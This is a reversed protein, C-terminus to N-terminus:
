IIILVRRLGLDYLYKKIKDQGIRSYKNSELSMNDLELSTMHTRIEGTEVKQVTFELRDTDYSLIKDVTDTWITEYLPVSFKIIM